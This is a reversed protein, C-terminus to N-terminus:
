LMWVLKNNVTGFIRKRGDFDQEVGKSDVNSTSVVNTAFKTDGETTTNPSV